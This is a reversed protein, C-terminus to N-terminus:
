AKRWFVADGDVALMPETIGHQARYDLVARRADIVVGYDDCIIWGGSAVRPYLNVLTDMTSSYLDGDMRLIAIQGGAYHPLTDKFYGQLFVVRDDLLDYREFNSRVAPLDVALEPRLHFDFVTLADKAYRPDPAPLGEFSDAAVVQRDTIGYARLVGALLICAGGRWVGTEVFDGAIGERISAEALVRLHRLRRTGIMTHAESPIDRGVKRREESYPVLEGFRNTPDGYITNAVVKELLDLYLATGHAAADVALRVPEEWRALRDHALEVHDGHERRVQQAQEDRGAAVLATALENALTADTPLLGFAHTLLACRQEDHGLRRALEARQRLVDAQNPRLRDVEQLLEDAETLRDAAVLGEALVRCFEIREHQGTPMQERLKMAEDYAEQRILARLQETVPNM